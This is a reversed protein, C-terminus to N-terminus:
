PCYFIFETVNESFMRLWNMIWSYSRRTNWVVAITSVQGRVYFTTEDRRILFWSKTARKTEESQSDHNQRVVLNLKQAVKLLIAVTSLRHHHRHNNLSSSSLLSLLKVQTPLGSLCKLCNRVRIQASWTYWPWPTHQAVFYLPATHLSIMHWNDRTDYPNRHELTCHMFTVIYLNTVNLAHFHRRTTHIEWVQRGQITGM